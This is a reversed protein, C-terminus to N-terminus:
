EKEEFQNFDNMEALRNLEDLRPIDHIIKEELHTIASLKKNWKFFQFIELTFYGLVILWSIGLLFKYLRLVREYQSVSPFEAKIIRRLYFLSIIIIIIIITRLSKIQSILYYNSRTLSQSQTRISKNWRHIIMYQIISLITIGILVIVFFGFRQFLQRFSIGIANHIRWLLGMVLFEIFFSLLIFISGFFQIVIEKHATHQYHAKLQDYDPPNASYNSVNNM